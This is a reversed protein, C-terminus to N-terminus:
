CEKLELQRLEIERGVIKFRRGAILVYAGVAFQEWERESLHSITVVV